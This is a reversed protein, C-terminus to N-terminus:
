RIEKLKKQFIGFPVAGTILEGDITTGTNKGVLFSPTGQVGKELYSKVSQQIQSIYKGSELCQRFLLQDMKIRAAYALMTGNDLREPNAFIQDQLAFFVRQDHACQTAQAVTLARAHKELPFNVSYFRVTGTDIYQQKLDAYTLQHFQRCFPCEYDTFEVIVFRASVAGIAPLGTTDLSMRVPQANQGAAGSEILRRLDRVEALIQDLTAGQEKGPTQANVVLCGLGATMALSLLLDLKPRSM